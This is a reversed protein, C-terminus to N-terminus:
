WSYIFLSTLSIFVKLQPVRGERGSTKRSQSSSDIKNLFSGLHESEPPMWKGKQFSVPKNAGNTGWGGKMLSDTSESDIARSNLDDWMYEEEESNKWNKSTLQISRDTNNLHASPLQSGVRESGSTRYIGYAHNVDFGNSRSIRMESTSIGAGHYPKDPVDREKLRESVRGVGLDSQRAIDSSFEQDRFEKREHIPNNILERQPQM